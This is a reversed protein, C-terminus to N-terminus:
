NSKSWINTGDNAMAPVYNRQILDNIIRHHIPEDVVSNLHWAYIDGYLGAMEKSKDFIWSVGFDTKKCVVYEKKEKM